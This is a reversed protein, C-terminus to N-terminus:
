LMKVLILIIITNFELLFASKLTKITYILQEDVLINASGITYYAGISEQKIYRKITVEYRVLKNHPRIQGFFEIEKAGLARGYGKAGCL